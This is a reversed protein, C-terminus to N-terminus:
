AAVVAQTTRDADPRILRFLYLAIGGGLAILPAEPGVVAGLSLSFVAALLIGPLDAASPAGKTNLGEAPQHGGNGPLYQVTLAVLLGAVGLFPLPWWVPAGDFGLAEPLHTYVADQLVSVARLFGYAGASLVVGLVAAVILLM